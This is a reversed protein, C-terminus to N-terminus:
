KINDEKMNDETEETKIDEIRLDDKTYYGSDLLLKEYNDATCVKSECLYTPIICSGNDYSETDNVEVEEGNMIADVMGVVAAALERTDKFIDMGQKGAALNKVNAADCDQGTVFPYEGTYSAALANQVGLSVSDNSCLVADLVTQDSYYDSIITEMRKRAAKTSWNATAAEEFTTQKSQVVIKGEDIYPQLVDMAGGYFFRANNDGSDGAFIEMHFPGAEHELDLAEVIAEGQEEGITYSDFTAYYSVADSNMLLRDYAIVPIKAEKAQLLPAELSEGDVPALVLLNCGNSIMTEIQSIQTDIENNAYRLEVKYGAAKLEAKMNAGDQNWRQLDKTPMAVGILKRSDEAEDTVADSAEEVADSSAEESVSKDAAEKSTGCGAAMALIVAASLLATIVRKNM